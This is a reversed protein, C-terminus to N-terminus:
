INIYKTTIKIPGTYITSLRRNLLPIQSQFVNRLFNPYISPFSGHKYGESFDLGCLQSFGDVYGCMSGCGDVAFGFGKCM